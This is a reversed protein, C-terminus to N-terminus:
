AVILVRCLRKAEIDSVFEQRNAIAHDMDLVVFLIMINSPIKTMDAAIGESAVSPSTGKRLYKAEIVLDEGGVTHDPVVGSCAFRVLSHESTLRAEHSALLAAIKRNLDPENKPREKAFMPPLAQQLVGALSEALRHIEPRLFERTSVVHLLSDLRLDGFVDDHRERLASVANAISRGHRHVLDYLSDVKELDSGGTMWDVVGAIEALHEREFESVDANRFFAAQRLYDIATSKTAPTSFADAVVDVSYLGPHDFEWANASAAALRRDICQFCEGCHTAQGLHRFTATCSVASSILEPALELILEIVERKTKWLFPTHITFPAGAVAGLFLELRGLTQPHTTRSARANLLDQRRALNLSTVGNEFIHIGPTEYVLAIAASIAAYLFSRSRQTEEAARHDILHCEFPYHSIRNPFRELLARALADQTRKTRGQPQHSVLVVHNDSNNLLDLAGALSDLGGSFPMVAIPGRPPPLAVAAADFLNAAPTTHGGTFVFEYECDGTMWRLCESALTAPEPTAEWFAADRTRIHFRLYRGWSNYEVADLPGRDRSRDGAYVYAAIELLDLLRDPIHLVKSVFTPLNLRVRGGDSRLYDLRMVNRRGRVNAGNCAVTMRKM